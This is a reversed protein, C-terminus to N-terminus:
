PHQQQQVLQLHTAPYPLLPVSPAPAAALPRSCDTTPYGSTEELAPDTATALDTFPAERPHSLEDPDPQSCTRSMGQRGRGDAEAEKAM